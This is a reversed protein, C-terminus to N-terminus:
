EVTQPEEETLGTIAEYVVESFESLEKDLPQNAEMLREVIKKNESDNDEAENNNSTSLDTKITCGALLIVLLGIIFIKKM